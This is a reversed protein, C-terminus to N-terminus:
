YKAKAAMWTLRPDVVVLESGRKMAEVMWHGLFGDPNSVIGDNGWVLICEPLM